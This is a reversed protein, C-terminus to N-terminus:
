EREKHLAAIEDLAAVAKTLVPAIARLSEETQLRYLGDLEIEEVEPPEGDRGPGVIVRFTADRMRGCPDPAVTWTATLYDREQDVEAGSRVLVARAREMLVSWHVTM